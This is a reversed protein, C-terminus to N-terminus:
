VRKSRGTKAAGVLQRMERASRSQGSTTEVQRCPVACLRPSESMGEASWVVIFTSCTLASCNAQSHNESYM